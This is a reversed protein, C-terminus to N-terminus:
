GSGRPGEATVRLLVRERIVVVMVKLFLSTEPAFLSITLSPLPPHGTAERMHDVARMVDTAM